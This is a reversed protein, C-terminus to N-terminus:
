AMGGVSVDRGDALVEAAAAVMTLRTLEAGSSAGVVRADGRAMTPDVILELGDTPASALAAADDPHLRVQLPLEDLAEVARRVRDLVTLADDPPIRELVAAAVDAAFALNLETATQVQARVETLLERVANVIGAGARDAADVAAGRGSAEGERYARATAEAIAAEVVEATAPDLVPVPGRLAHVRDDAVTLQLIEPM